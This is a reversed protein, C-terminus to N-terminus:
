HTSQISSTCLGVAANAAAAIRKVGAAADSAANYRYLNFKFAFKSVLFDSSLSLPQFQISELYPDVSNLTYLGVADDIKRKAV